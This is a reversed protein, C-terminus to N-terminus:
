ARAHRSGVVPDPVDITKGAPVIGRWLPRQKVQPSYACAPSGRPDGKLDPRNTAAMQRIRKRNGRPEAQLEKLYNDLRDFSEDYFRRYYALWDGPARHPLAAM